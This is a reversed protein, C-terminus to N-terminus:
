CGFTEGSRNAALASDCMGLFIETTGRKKLTIAASPSAYYKGGFDAGVVGGHHLGNILTRVYQFLLVVFRDAEGHDVHFREPRPHAKSGAYPHTQGATTTTARSTPM